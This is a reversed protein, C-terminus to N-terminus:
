QYRMKDGDGAVIDGAVKWVEFLLKVYGILGAPIRWVGNRGKITERIQIRKAHIHGLEIALSLLEDKETGHSPLAKHDRLILYAWYAASPNIHAVKRYKQLAQEFDGRSFLIHALWYSAMHLGGDEALAYFREALVPDREVGLGGDYIVGLAYEAHSKESSNENIIRLYMLIANATDGKLLVERALGINVESSM